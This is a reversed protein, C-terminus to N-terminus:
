IQTSNYQLMELIKQNSEELKEMKNRMEENQKRVQDMIDQLDSAEKENKDMKAISSSAYVNDHRARQDIHSLLGNVNDVGSNRNKFILM